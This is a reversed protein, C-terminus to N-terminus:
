KRTYTTATEEIINNRDSNKEFAYKMVINLAAIVPVAIIMGIMGFLLNFIVLGSLVVVPHLNVSKAM